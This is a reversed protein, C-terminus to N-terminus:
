NTIRLSEIVRPDRVPFISSKAVIKLYVFILTAVMGILPLPDLISVHVGARHLEPLIVIYMDLMQMFVVWGAIM